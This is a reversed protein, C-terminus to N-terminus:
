PLWGARAAAHVVLVGVMIACVVALSVTIGNWTSEFEQRLEDATFPPPLPEQREDSFYVTQQSEHRHSLCTRKGEGDWGERLGAHNRQSGCWRCGVAAPPFQAVAVRPALRAIPCTRGQNCDGTCPPCTRDAM